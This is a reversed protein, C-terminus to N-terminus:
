LSDHIVSKRSENKPTINLHKSRRPKHFINSKASVNNEDDNEEIILDDSMNQNSKQTTKKNRSPKLEGNTENIEEEDTIEMM